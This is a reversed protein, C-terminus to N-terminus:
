NISVHREHRLQFVLTADLPFAQRFDDRRHPGDVGAFLSQFILQHRYLGFEFPHDSVGGRTMGGCLWGSSRCHHHPLLDQPHEHPLAVIALPDKFSSTPVLRRRFWAVSPKILPSKSTACLHWRVVVRVTTDCRDLSSGRRDGSVVFVNEVM